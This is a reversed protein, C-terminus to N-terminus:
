WSCQVNLGALMYPAPSDDGLHEYVQISHTGEDADFSVIRARVYRVARVKDVNVRVDEGVASFCCIHEIRATCGWCACLHRAVPKKVPSSVVAGAGGASRRTRKAPLALSVGLRHEALQVRDAISKGLYDCRDINARCTHASKGLDWISLCHDCAAKKTLENDAQDVNARCSRLHPKVTKPM